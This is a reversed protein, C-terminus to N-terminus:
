HSTLWQDVQDDLVSVGTVETVTLVAVGPAIAATAARGTLQPSAPVAHKYRAGWEKHLKIYSEPRIHPQIVAQQATFLPFEGRKKALRCGSSPEFSQNQNSGFYYEAVKTMFFIVFYKFVVKNTLLLLAM